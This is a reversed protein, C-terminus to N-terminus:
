LSTATMLVLVIAGAQVLIRLEEPLLSSRDGGQFAIMSLWGGMLVLGIVVFVANAPRRIRRLRKRLLGRLKLNALKRLAADGLIM